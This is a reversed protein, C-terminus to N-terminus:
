GRFWGTLVTRPPGPAMPTVRHRLRDSLRFLVADGARTTAADYFLEDTEDALQLRGGGYPERSLSVSIAILRRDVLDTHWRDGHGTGAAMRYVVGQFSAIRGCGAVREVLAFLAPDNLSFLLGGVIAPADLVHDAPPPEGHWDAPTGHQRPVFPGADVADLWRVLLAPEVFAEACLHHRTSFQERLRAEDAPAPPHFGRRTLQGAGM